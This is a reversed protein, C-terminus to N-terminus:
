HRRILGRENFLLTTPVQMQAGTRVCQDPSIRSLKVSPGYRLRISAIDEGRSTPDAITVTDVSRTSLERQILGTEVLDRRSHANWPAWLQVIVAHGKVKFGPLID